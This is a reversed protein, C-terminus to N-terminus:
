NTDPRSIRQQPRRRKQRKKLEMADKYPSSPLIQSKSGSSINRKSGYINPLPSIYRIRMSLGVICEYHGADQHPLYKVLLPVKDCVDKPVYEVIHNGPAITVHIPRGLVEATNQVELEGVVSKPDSMHVIREVLTNFQLRESMAASLVATDPEVYVKECMHSIVMTRLNDARATELLSKMTDIIVGTVPNRQASQLDCFGIVVSRFFCRGDGQTPITCHAPSKNATNPQENPSRVGAVNCDPTTSSTTPMANYLVLQLMQLIIRM